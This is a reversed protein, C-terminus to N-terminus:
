WGIKILSWLYNVIDCRLWAGRIINVAINFSSRNNLEEKHLEKYHIDKILSEINFIDEQLWMMSWLRYLKDNNIVADFFSKDCMLSVMFCYFDFSGVYLPFGIHRIAEYINITSTTLQYLNVNRPGCPEDSFNNSKCYAMSVSRTSIEPAFMNREIFISSRVNKPFYHVNNFTASSNWLDTIHVTIQGIIEIKDYLYSVPEKNFILGNISPTGHSFNIKSLELLIVLLQMIITRVIDYKLPTYAFHQSKVTSNNDLDHYMAIKHLESMPGISPVVYLSYGTNNCVFATHMIPSHPLGKELFIKNIMWLILTRITFTDGTICRLNNIDPTGCLTINKYQQLYIKARRAADNDWILFLSQINMSTVILNEGSYKGCQLQFPKDVCGIRFDILRRLNKCQACSFVSRREGYGMNCRCANDIALPGEQKWISRILVDPDNLIMNTVEMRDQSYRDLLKDIGRTRECCDMDHYPFINSQNESIEEAYTPIMEMEKNDVFNSINYNNSEELQYYGSKM